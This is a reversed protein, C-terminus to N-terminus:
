DGNAGPPGGGGHAAAAVHIGGALGALGAAVATAPPAPERGPEARPEGGGGGGGRLWNVFFTDISTLSTAPQRENRENECVFGEGRCEGVVGEQKEEGEQSCVVGM